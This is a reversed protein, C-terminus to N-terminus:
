KKGDQNKIVDSKYSLATTVDMIEDELSGLITSDIGIGLSEIIQNPIPSLHQSAEFLVSALVALPKLLYGQGRAYKKLIKDLAYIGAYGVPSRIIEDVQFPGQSLQGNPLLYNTLYRFGIGAAYAFLWSRNFNRVRPYIKNSFKDFRSLM